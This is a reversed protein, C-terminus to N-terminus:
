SCEIRNSSNLATHRRSSGCCLTALFGMCHVCIRENIKWSNSCREQRPWLTIIEAVPRVTFKGTNAAQPGYGACITEWVEGKKRKALQGEFLALVGPELESAAEAKRGWCECDIYLTHQKGDQGTEHLQLAFSACPKGAENYKVTVGYKSIHGVFIVRNICGM